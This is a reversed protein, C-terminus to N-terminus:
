TNLGFACHKRALVNNIPLDMEWSLDLMTKLLESQHLQRNVQMPGHVVQIMATQLGLMKM